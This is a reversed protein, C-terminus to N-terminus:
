PTAAMMTAPVSPACRSTSRVPVVTVAVTITIMVAAAAAVAVVTWAKRRLHEVHHQWERRMEDVTPRAAGPSPAAYGTSNLWLDTRIENSALDVGRHPPRPELPKM